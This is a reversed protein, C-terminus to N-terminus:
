SDVKLLSCIGQDRGARKKNVGLHQYSNDLCEWIELTVILNLSYRLSALSLCGLVLHKANRRDCGTMMPDASARATRGAFGEDGFILIGCTPGRHGLSVSVHQAKM